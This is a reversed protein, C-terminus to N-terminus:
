RSPGDAGATERSVASGAGPFCWISFLAPPLRDVVRMILATALIAFLLRGWLVALGDAGLAMVIATDEILSHSFGMFVCAAFIQRPPIRGSRAEAIMLGGGYAVGLLTGIVAFHRAERGIGALRLVPDILRGLLDMIGTVRLLEMAWGLVLLVVLMWGMAEALGLLFGGWGQTQSMPQWMGHLPRQLWGTAASIAHLLAAYIMGGGVRILTTALLGPGARRIIGQEIPLAHVFLLLASFITIDAVSLDSAPVLTFILTIAGWLGILIGTLWALGLEPPLGYFSMVPDFLPAIAAIVGLRSLAETLLAVPIILKALSIYVRLLDLTKRRFFGSGTM